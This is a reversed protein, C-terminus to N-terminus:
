HAVWHGNSLDPRAGGHCAPQEIKGAFLLLNVVEQAEDPFDRWYIRKYEEIMEDWTQETQCNTGVTILGVDLINVERKVIDRVCASLSLGRIQVSGVPAVEESMFMVSTHPAYDFTGGIRVGSAWTDTITGTRGVQGHDPSGVYIFRDGERM